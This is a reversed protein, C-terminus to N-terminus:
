KAVPVFALFDFALGDNLNVMRLLHKGKALRLPLEQNGKDRLSVYVWDTPTMGFGGSPPFALAEAEPCPVNGDVLLQRRTGESDTAYHFRLAYMGDAPIEVEWELWHGVDTHWYSVIKDWAGERDNFVQCEGKGQAKFNEAQVVTVGENLWAPKKFPGAAAGNASAPVTSWPLGLAQMDALVRPGGRYYSGSGYDSGREGYPLAKTLPHEFRKDGTWLYARAIGEVMYPITGRSYKMKPCSTYRFGAVDESYCEDLLYRAGAILAEKAEPEGTMEHYYKIGSLLLAIMFNAEGRHRPECHCHGPVLMRSWGGVQQTRGPEVQYDPLPRPVKEQYTYVTRMILKAANLYAPDYTASYAAADMILRWAPNRLEGALHYYNAHGTTVHYDATGLGASWADEEGSLFYQWLHGECWSHTASGGGSDWADAGKPSKGYYGGNHGLQHIYVRGVPEKGPVWNEIDVDRNHKEAETALHYAEENGSRVYELLFAAPNDYEGNGWHVGREGFWDGFNLMGYDGRKERTPRYAALNRDVNKEYGGFLAENRPAISYFAGSGCYWAAPATALLPRQFANAAAQAAGADAVTGLLVEHTKRLGRRFKYHGERLYFYYKTSNVDFPFSDYYGAEFDPCLDLKVSDAGVRFGKPYLEWFQRLVILDNGSRFQGSFRGDLPEGGNLVYQKFERQYLNDAAKLELSKGDKLEAQWAQGALPIDLYIEEFNSHTAKGQVLFSHSLKVLPSGSWFEYRAMVTLAPAGDAGTFEVVTKVQAYEQGNDCITITAAGTGTAMAEGGSTRAYTRVPKGAALLLEGQPTIQFRAAGTDIIVGQPNGDLRALKQGEWVTAQVEAGYELEYNVKAQAPCDAVFTVLVWKVSYDPWYATERIEARRPQGDALLRVNRASGLRGQPFPIGSRVLWRQAPTPHPNNLGLPIRESGAVSPPVPPRVPTFRLTESYVPKGQLDRGVARAQYERGQDLGQLLARHLLRTGPSESALAFDGIGYELRTPAPNESIWSFRVEGSGDPAVRFALCDVKCSQERPPPPEPMFLLYHIPLPATGSLAVLEVLEGGKFDIAEDLWYFWYNNNAANIAALGKEVGDVRIGVRAGTRDFIMFGAHFKGKPAPCAATAEPRLPKIHGYELTTYYDIDFGSLELKDYEIAVTTPASLLPRIVDLGYARSVGGLAQWGETQRAMKTGAQLALDKVKVRPSTDSMPPNPTGATHTLMFVGFEAGAPTAKIPLDACLYLCNGSVAYRLKGDGCASAEVGFLSLSATGASVVLMVDCGTISEKEGMQRGTKQDNDVDLYLINTSTAVPPPGAFTVRFLYRDEAVHCAAVELIDMGAVYSAEARRKEPLPSSTIVPVFVAASKPDTRFNREVRNSLGDGDQDLDLELDEPPSIKFRHIVAKRTTDKMAPVPKEPTTLSACEAEMAFSVTNRVPEVPLCLVFYLSKGKRFWPIEQSGGDTGDAKWNQVSAKGQKLSLELDAGRRPSSADDPQNGTAENRDTDLALSFLSNEVAPVDGFSVQWLFYQGSLHALYVDYIDMGPEYTIKRSFMENERGDVLILTTDPLKGEAKALLAALTGADAQAFVRVAGLCLWAALVRM